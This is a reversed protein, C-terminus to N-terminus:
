PPPPTPRPSAGASSRVRSSSAPRGRVARVRGRRRVRQSLDPLHDPPGLAPVGRGHGPKPLQEVPVGANPLPVAVQGGLNLPGPDPQRGAVVQVQPLRDGPVGRLQPGLQGPGRGRGDLPEQDAARPPAAGLAAAVRPRADAAFALPKTFPTTGLRLMPQVSAVGVVTPEVAKGKQGPRATGFTRREEDYRYAGAAQALVDGVSLTVRKGPEDYFPFEQDYWDADDPNYHDRDDLWRNWLRDVNAHHLWFIPDRAATQPRGMNGGGAGVAVHVLDHAQNEVVGRTGTSEPKAPLAAKPRRVGGFAQGAVSSTFRTTKRAARWRGPTGRL